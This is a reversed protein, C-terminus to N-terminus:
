FDDIWAFRNSNTIIKIASITDDMIASKIHSSNIVQLIIRFAGFSTVGTMLAFGVQHKAVTVDFRRRQLKKKGVGAVGGQAAPIAVMQRVPFFERRSNKGRQFLKEEHRDVFEMAFLALAVAFDEHARGIPLIGFARM